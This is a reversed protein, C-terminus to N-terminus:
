NSRRCNILNSKPIPIPPSFNNKEKDDNVTPINNDLSVDKKKWKDYRNNRLTAIKLMEEYINDNDTSNSDNDLLDDENDSHYESWDNYDNGVAVVASGIIAYRLTL